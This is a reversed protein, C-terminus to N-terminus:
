KKRMMYAYIRKIQDKGSMERKIKRSYGSKKNVQEMKNLDIEYVATKTTTSTSKATTNANLFLNFDFKKNKTNTKTSTTNNQSFTSASYLQFNEELESSAYPSYSIWENAESLWEWYYYSSTLSTSSTSHAGIKDEDLDSSATNQKTTDLICMRIRREYGTKLNKQTMKGDCFNAEFQIGGEDFQAQKLFLLKFCIVDLFRLYFWYFRSVSKAKNKFAKTFIAQTQDNYSKWELSPKKANATANAVTSSALWEWRYALQM